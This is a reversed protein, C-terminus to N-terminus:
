RDVGLAKRARIEAHEFLQTGSLVGRLGGLRKWLAFKCAARWYSFEWGVARERVAVPQRVALAESDSRAIRGVHDLQSTEVILREDHVGVENLEDLAGRVGDEGEDVALFDDNSFGGVIDEVFDS